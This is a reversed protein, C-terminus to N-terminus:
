TQLNRRVIKDTLYLSVAQITSTPNVGGSTPFISSDVVYLNEVDHCMGDQNVVSNRPDLGMKTTGMLHWGTKRVPGFSYTKSAGSETLVEKARDIGYSMMKKTNNGMKYIIKPAPIGHSDCLTKDLLVQNNEEPLDECIISIGITSGMFTKFNEHHNKGWPITRRQIGSIALEVAGPARLIQMTFGRKFGRELNTEYFEQSQICCGHPGIHSNINRDFVGEVFGLPHMMLNKGVLGSRNALSSDSVNSKSNLLLRPTGVGNCALIVIMASLSCKKGNKDFYIVGKVKDNQDTIVEKVRAETILKVGNRIAEPWYTIDVSGKAGQPCGSNCPGLNICSARGNKERTLIASYSPWWHWGLKNFGNGMIEAISGLGIPPLLDTIEPYAPDGELGSVGMMQDNLNYYKEIDQYQFPWDSGVNDLSYTSFDSPHMRPFHGSYLITSGGVANYNAISIQSEQDNIPYDSPLNRENPFPSYERTRHFEWDEKTSPYKSPDTWSGQELCVVKEFHKSLNWASAAGSAGAGIILVDCSDQM